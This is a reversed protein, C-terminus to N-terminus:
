ETLVFILVLITAAFFSLMEDPPNDVIGAVISAITLLSCFELHTITKIKDQSTAFANIM